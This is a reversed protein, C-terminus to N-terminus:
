RTPPPEGSPGVNADLWNSLAAGARWVKAVENAARRTHLWAPSGLDRHTILGKMRLLDVRPHDRPWGRPATALPPEAGGIDLRARRASAIATELEAGIREHDVAARFRELQDRQMHYLGGGAFLGNASIQVYRSTGVEQTVAAHATKYPSKDASFRVDRNMRFVKFAGFEPELADLMERMPTAVSAEFRQKNAQWWSRENNAELEVFFDLADEPFGRFTVAGGKM